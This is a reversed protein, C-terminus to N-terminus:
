QKPLVQNNKPTRQYLKAATKTTPLRDIKSNSMGQMMTSPPSHHYLNALTSSKALAVIFFSVWPIASCLLTIAAALVSSTFALM